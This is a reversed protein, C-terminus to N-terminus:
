DRPNTILSLIHEEGIKNNDPINKIFNEYIFNEPWFQEAGERKLFLVLSWKFKFYSDPSKLVRSYNEISCIAKEQTINKKKLGYEIKKFLEPTSEHSIIKKSNWFILLDNLADHSALGRPSKPTKEEEEEEEGRGRPDLKGRAAGTKLVGRSNHEDRISALAPFNIIYLNDYRELDFVKLQSFTEMVLATQKWKMRIVLATQKLTMKFIPPEGKKWQGACYEVIKWYAAYGAVGYKEEIMILKIDSSANALHKFWRMILGM